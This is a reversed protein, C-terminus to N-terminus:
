QGCSLSGTLCFISIEFVAGNNKPFLRLWSSEFCRALIMERYLRSRTRKPFSARKLKQRPYALYSLWDCILSHKSYFVLTLHRVGQDFPINVYLFTNWTEGWRPYQYLITWRYQVQYLAVEYLGVDSTPLGSCLKSCGLERPKDHVPWPFFWANRKINALHILELIKKRNFFNRGVKQEGAVLTAEHNWIPKTILRDSLLEHVLFRLM